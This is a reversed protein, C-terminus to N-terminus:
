TEYLCLYFRIIMLNDTKQYKYKNLSQIRKIEKFMTWYKYISAENPDYIGNYVINVNTM